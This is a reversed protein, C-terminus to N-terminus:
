FFVKVKEVVVFFCFAFFVAIMTQICFFFVISTKSNTTQRRPSIKSAMENKKEFIILSSWSHNFVSSHKFIKEIIVLENIESSRSISFNSFYMLLMKVKFISSYKLFLLSIKCLQQASSMYGYM